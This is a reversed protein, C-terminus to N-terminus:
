VTGARWRLAYLAAASDARPLRELLEAARAAHVSDGDAVEVLLDRLARDHEITEAAGIFLGHAREHRALGAAGLPLGRARCEARLSDALEEDDDGVPAGASVPESTDIGALVARNRAALADLEDAVMTDSGRVRDALGELWEPPAIVGALEILLAWAPEM